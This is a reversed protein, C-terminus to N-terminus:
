WSRLTCRLATGTCAFCPGLFPRMIHLQCASVCPRGQRVRGAGEGALASFGKVIRGVHLDKVCGEM